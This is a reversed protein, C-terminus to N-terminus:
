LISLFPYSREENRAVLLVQQTAWLDKRGEFTGGHAEQILGEIDEGHPVIRLTGDMAINYLVDYILM